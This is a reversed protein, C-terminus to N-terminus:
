RSHGHEELQDVFRSFLAALATRDTDSWDQMIEEVLATGAASIRRRVQRGRPTLTLLAARRDTPDPQRAVLQREELRRIQPVITSKDVGQWVALDSARVPGREAITDLLWTDTPSMDRGASGLLERRFGGRNAWRLVKFVAMNVQAGTTTERRNQIPPKVSDTM